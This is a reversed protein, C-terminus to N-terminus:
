EVSFTRIYVHKYRAHTPTLIGGSSGAYVKKPAVRLKFRALEGGADKGWKDNLKAVQVAMNIYGSRKFNKGTETSALYRRM